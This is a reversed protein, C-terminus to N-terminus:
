KGEKKPGKIIHATMKTEDAKAFRKIMTLRTVHKDDINIAKFFADVANKAFNDLDIRKFSGDKNAFKPSLLEIEFFIQDCMDVKPKNKKKALSSCLSWRVSDEFTKAKKSLCLVKGSARKYLRNTSEPLERVTVEIVDSM